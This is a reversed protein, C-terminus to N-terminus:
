RSALERTIDEWTVGKEAMLVMVHYLFDSIEYKIEEKDPNKAAIVIETCEEGVKKLIKDIGKDFLYNTYSGEKPNAKRDLIVDYVDQFVKSPDTDQYEKKIIENFFCSRNGTHCAAGVQSVKALLTDKDCDAYLAKVYQFHGSTEGKVWQEKRSRSYYTMRGTRITNEFAEENMYALMLVEKNRYDQVIVPILGDSNTVLEDFKLKADFGAVDIGSESCFAKITNIQDANSNVVPGFVGEVRDKSLVAAIQAPVGDPMPVMMPTAVASTLMTKLLAADYEDRENVLVLSSVYEEIVGSHEEAEELKAVSAAIKEKGFRKSVEATLEVNSEKGYNLVAKACGTYLIKKVDEFRKINGCGWVPAESAAVIKKLVGIAKDHDEDNESLDFVITGDACHDSYSAALEEPKDSIVSRDIRSKVACGKYLYIAAFLSKRGM